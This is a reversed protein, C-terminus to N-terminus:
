SAPTPAAKFWPSGANISMDDDPDVGPDFFPQCGIAPSGWQVNDEADAITDELEVGGGNQVLNVGSAFLKNVTGFTDAFDSNAILFLGNAPIVDTSLFTVVTTPGSTADCAKLTYDELTIASGTPNKLQIYDSAYNHLASDPDLDAAVENIVVDPALPDAAAPAPLASVGVALVAAGALALTRRM